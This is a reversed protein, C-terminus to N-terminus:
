RSTLVQVAAPELRLSISAQADPEVVHDDVHLLRPGRITVERALVPALPGARAEGHELSKLYDDLLPRDRETATVVSLWGDSPDASTALELQPGVSRSNLAEFLVVRDSTTTGDITLVCETLELAALAKRYARVAEPLKRQSPTRDTLLRAQSAAIGAPVLGAGVSELFQQDGHPLQVRGMDLPRRVGHHWSRAIQEPRGEIGLSRAVNNATGFPLIALPVGSGAMARAAAGVTGDGGAAVVLDASADLLKAGKSHREVIRVLRHGAQTVVDRIEDLTVGAGASRSYYLMLNM